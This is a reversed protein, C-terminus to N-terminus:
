IESKQSKREPKNLFYVASGGGGKALGVMLHIQSQEWSELLLDGWGPRSVLEQNRKQTNNNAQQDM